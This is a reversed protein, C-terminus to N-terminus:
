WQAVGSRHMSRLRADGARIIRRPDALPRLAAGVNIRRRLENVLALEIFGAVREKPKLATEIARVLGGDAWFLEDAKSVEARAAGAHTTAV